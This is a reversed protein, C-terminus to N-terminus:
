GGTPNLPLPVHICDAAEVRTRRSSIWAAVSMDPIRTITSRMTDARKCLWLVMGTQAFTFDQGPGECPDSDECVGQPPPNVYQNSWSGDKAQHRALWGLGAAVAAESRANGGLTNIWQERREDTRAAFPATPAALRRTAEAVREEPPRRRQPAGPDLGNGVPRTASAVRETVKPAHPAEAPLSKESKAVPGAAALANAPVPAPRNPTLLTSEDPRPEHTLGVRAATTGAPTRQRDLLFVVALAAALAVTLGGDVVLRSLFRNM